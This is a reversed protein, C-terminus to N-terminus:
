QKFLLTSSIRGDENLVKLVYVGQKLESIDYTNQPVYDAIVRGSIDYIHVSKLSEINSISFSANVPNPFIDISPVLLDSTNLPLQFCDEDLFGVEEEGNSFSCLWSGGQDTFCYHSAKIDFNSQLDGIKEIVTKEGQIDWDLDYYSFHQVVLSEGGVDLTSLSDLYYVISDKCSNDSFDLYYTMSDGVSLTFDYLLEFQMFENLKYVRSSDEFCIIENEVFVSDGNAQNIATAKVSLLYSEVGNVTVEELVETESFGLTGFPIFYRHVWTDDTEFWEQSHLDANFACLLLLLLTHKM